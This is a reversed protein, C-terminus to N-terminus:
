AAKRELDRLVTSYSVGLRMAAARMSVGEVNVLQELLARRAAADVPVVIRGYEPERKAEVRIRRVMRPLCNFALAVHDADFGAGDKVIRARWQAPTEGDPKEIPGRRAHILADTADAIVQERNEPKALVYAQQWITHLPNAEGPPREGGTPKGSSFSSELKMASGYMLLQMDVLVARMRRDQDLPDIQESPDEVLVLTTM